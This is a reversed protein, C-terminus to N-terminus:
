ALRAGAGRSTTAGKVSSLGSRSRANSQNETATRSRLLQTATRRRRIREPRQWKQRQSRMWLPRSPLSLGLGRPPCTLPLLHRHRHIPRGLAHRTERTGDRQWMDRPRPPLYERPEGVVAGERRSTVQAGGLRKRQVSAPVCGRGRASLVSTTSRGSQSRQLGMSGSRTGVEVCSRGCEVSAGGPFPSLTSALASGACSRASTMVFSSGIPHKRPQSSESGNGATSRTSDRRSAKGSPFRDLM